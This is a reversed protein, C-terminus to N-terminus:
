DLQWHNGGRKLHIRSRGHEDPTFSWEDKRGDLKLFFGGATAPSQTPVVAGLPYQMWDERSTKGAPEITTRFPYLLVRFRAESGSRSIV